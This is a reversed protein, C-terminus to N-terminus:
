YAIAGRVDTIIGNKKEVVSSVEGWTSFRLVDRRNFLEFLDNVQDCAEDFASESLLGFGVQDEDSDVGVIVVYREPM